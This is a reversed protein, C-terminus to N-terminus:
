ALLLQNALGDSINGRVANRHLSECPPERHGLSFARVFATIAADVAFAGESFIATFVAFVGRPHRFQTAAALVGPAASDTEASAKPDFPTWVQRGVSLLHPMYKM